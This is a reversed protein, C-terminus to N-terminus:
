PAITLFALVSDANVGLTYANGIVPTGATAILTEGATTTDAMLADGVASASGATVCCIGWTQCWFYQATTNGAGVAVNSVGAPQAAGTTPMIIPDMWPNKAVHTTADASIAVPITASLPHPPCEGTSRSRSSAPM